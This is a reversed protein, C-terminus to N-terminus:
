EANQFYKKSPLFWVREIGTIAGPFFENKAFFNECWNLVEQPTKMKPMESEQENKWFKVAETEGFWEFVLKVKPAQGELLSQTPIMMLKAYVM